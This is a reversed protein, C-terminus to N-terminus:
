LLEDFNDHFFLDDNEFLDFSMKQKKIPLQENFLLSNNNAPSQFIPDVPFYGDSLNCEFLDFGFDMNMLMNLDKGVKKNEIPFHNNTFSIQKKDTSNSPDYDHFLQSSNYSLESQSFTEPRNFINDFPISEMLWDNNSTESHQVSPIEKELLADFCSLSLDSVCTPSNGGVGISSKGNYGIFNSSLLKLQTPSEFNILKLQITEQVPLNTSPILNKQFHVFNSFTEPSTEEDLSSMSVTTCSSVTEVFPIHLNKTKEDNLNVISESNTSSEDSSTTKITDDNKTLNVKKKLNKSKKPSSTVSSSTEVSIDNVPLVQQQKAKELKQFYKQAHTRIQIITRTKVMESIKKWAKGHIKLGELFLEHEEQTWRGMNERPVESRSRNEDSQTTKQSSTGNQANFDIQSDM